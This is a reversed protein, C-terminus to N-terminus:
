DNTLLNEIDEEEIERDIERQNYLEDMMEFASLEVNEIVDQLEPTEFRDLKSDITFPSDTYKDVRKYEAHYIRVQGKKIDVIFGECAINIQASYDM